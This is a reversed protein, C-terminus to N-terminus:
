TMSAEQEAEYREAAEYWRLAESAKEYWAQPVVKGYTNARFTVSVHQGDQVAHRLEGPRYTMATASMTPM